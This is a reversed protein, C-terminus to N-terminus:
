PKSKKSSPLRSALEKIKKQQQPSLGQAFSEPDKSAKELLATIEEISKGQMNGLVDSSLEFLDQENQASGAMEKIKKLLEKNADSDHATSERIRSDKLDSQVNKIADDVESQKAFTPQTFLFVTTILVTLVTM